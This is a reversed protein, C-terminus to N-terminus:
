AECCLVTKTCLHSVKAGVCADENKKTATADVSQTQGTACVNKVGACYLSEGQMCVSGMAGPVEEYTCGSPAQQSMACSAFATFLTFFSLQM